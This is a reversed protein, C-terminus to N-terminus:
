PGPKKKGLRLPYEHIEHRGIGVRGRVHLLLRLPKAGLELAGADQQVSGPGTQAQLAHAAVPQLGSQVLGPMTETLELMRHGPPEGRRDAVRPGQGRSSQRGSLTKRDGGLPDRLDRRLFPRGPQELAGAPHHRVHGAGGDDPSAEGATEGLPPGGAMRVLCRGVLAIGIEGRDVIRRRQERRHHQDDGFEANRLAGFVAHPLLLLQEPAQAPAALHQAPAFYVLDGRRDLEARLEDEVPNRGLLRHQRHDVLRSPEAEIRDPFDVIQDEVLREIAAVAVEGGEARRQAVLDQGAHPQIALGHKSAAPRDGRGRGQGVAHALRPDGPHLHHLVREVGLRQRDCCPQSLLPRESGTRRGDDVAGAGLGMIRIEGARRRRNERQQAAVRREPEPDDAVQRQRLAELAHLLLDVFNGAGVVAGIQAQQGLGIDRDGRELVRQEVVGLAVDLELFGRDQRDGAHARRSPSEAVDDLVIGVPQEGRIDLAPLAREVAQDLVRRQTAPQALTREGVHEVAIRRLADGLVLHREQEPRLRFPARGGQADEGGVDEERRLAETAGRDDGLLHGGAQVGAVADLDADEGGARRDGITRGRQQAVVGVADRHEGDGQGGRAVLHHLEVIRRDGGSKALHQIRQPRVHHVRVRDLPEAGGDQAQALLAADRRHDGQVIGPPQAVALEHDTAVVAVAELGGDVELDALVAQRM